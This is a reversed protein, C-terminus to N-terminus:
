AARMEAVLADVDEANPSLANIGLWNQRSVLGYAEDCYTTLWDWSMRKREGWTNFHLWDSDYGHLWIAHGGVVTQDGAANLAWDGGTQMIYNPIQVGIYLGGLAAIARMVSQRDRVDVVGFATLYDRGPQGPRAYGERIWRNLVDLEIGGQDTQAQGPVYGSAASYNDIVQADSLLVPAQAAGTWTRIASAVSVQTCCGITDNCWVPWVDNPAWNVATPPVILRAALPAGLRFTRADHRAPRKGLKRVSM